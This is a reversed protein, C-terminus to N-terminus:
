TGWFTFAGHILDVVVLAIYIWNRKYVQFILEVCGLNVIEVQLGHKKIVVLSGASFAFSVFYFAVSAKFWDVILISCETTQLSSSSMIIGVFGILFFYGMLYATAIYMLITYDIRVTTITRGNPL